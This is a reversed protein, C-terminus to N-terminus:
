DEKLYGELFEELGKVDQDTWQDTDDLSNGSPLSIYTNIPVSNRVRAYLFKRYDINSENRSYHKMARLYYIFFAAAFLVVLVVVILTIVTSIMSTVSAIKAAQATEIVAEAQKTAANSQMISSVGFVLVVVLLVIAFFIAM